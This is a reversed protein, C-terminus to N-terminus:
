GNGELILLRGRLWRAYSFTIYELLKTGMKPLRELCPRWTKFLLFFLWGNTLHGCKLSQSSNYITKQLPFTAQQGGFSSKRNFNYYRPVPEQHCGGWHDTAVICPVLFGPFWDGRPSTVDMMHNLYLFLIWFFVVEVVGVASPVKDSLFWM